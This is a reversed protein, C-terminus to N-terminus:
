NQPKYIIFKLVNVKMSMNTTSIQTHISIPEESWFADLVVLLILLGMGPNAWDRRVNTFGGFVPLSAEPM